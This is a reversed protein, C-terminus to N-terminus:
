PVIAEIKPTTGQPFKAEPNEATAGLERLLAVTDHYQVPALANFEQPFRGM